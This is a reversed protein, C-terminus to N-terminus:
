CAQLLSLSTSRKHRGGHPPLSEFICWMAAASISQRQLHVAPPLCFLVYLGDVAHAQETVNVDSWLDTFVGRGQMRVHTELRTM